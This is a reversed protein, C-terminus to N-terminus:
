MASVIFKYTEKISYFESLLLEGGLIIAVWLTM